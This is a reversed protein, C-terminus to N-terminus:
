CGVASKPLGPSINAALYAELILKTSELLQDYIAHNEPIGFISFVLKDEYNHIDEIGNGNDLYQQSWKILMSVVDPTLFAKMQEPPNSSITYIEDLENIETNIKNRMMKLDIQDLKSTPVIRFNFTAKPLDSIQAYTYYGPKASLTGTYAHSILVPTGKYWLKVQPRLSLGGTEVDGGEKEAIEKYINTIIQLRKNYVLWAIFFTILVVGTIILIPKM